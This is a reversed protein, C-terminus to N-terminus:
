LDAGAAVPELRTGSARALSVAPGAPRGYRTPPRDALRQRGAIAEALLRVGDHCGVAYAGPVPARAGYHTAYAARMTDHADDGAFFPMASFLAGSDDGGVSLLCNEDLATCLRVCVRAAGAARFARHFLIGDRGILSVLVADPRGRLLRDVLADPRHLGIPVLQEQVVAGGLRPIVTRAAAHVARPWVYDSGVLAWRRADRGRVMDRVPALMQTLPGDGIFVTPGAPHFLEHPPTFVYPIRGHLEREIAIRVDSTHTGVLGDVGAAATVAGVDSATRAPGHGADIVVLRLPRDLLEAEREAALAAANVIGPGAVGMVGSMSAVVGLTIADTRPGELMAEMASTISVPSTM